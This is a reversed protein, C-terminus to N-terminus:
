ISHDNKVQKGAIFVKVINRDDGAYLFKQVMKDVRGHSAISKENVSAPIDFLDLPAKSIDVLLADFDKGVAFNGCVSDLSLAHAGGLTALYLAHKYELPEYNKNSNDNPNQIRGSGFIHQKKFINLCHSVNLADQIAVLMSANHGGSVDTGLGVKIGANWLRRVDCLGSRLKINSTPCHAVSTGYKKFLQLEEDELHVGHAMICKSTMLKTDEYVETYTEKKFIDKVAEIEGCNESIHSQINLGYKAALDSLGNLLESTCSLAFRPTIIPRVLPNNLNLVDNIFTETDRLSDATKEIYYDPSANNSCVKGVFARQGQKTAEYALILSSDKHNTAFYSAMTTGCNITRRVVAEYVQKAFDTNSYASELPFTYTDLWKLLPLDLGLGINPYQPAHIHCDVFGPLLFQSPSLTTVPLSNLYDPPLASRDGIGIIKGKEIAVFGNEFTELYDRSECHAVSGLFLHDM